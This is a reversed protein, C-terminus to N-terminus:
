LSSMEEVQFGDPGPLSLIQTLEFSVKRGERRKRRGEGQRKLVGRVLRLQLGVKGKASDSAKGESRRGVVLVARNRDERSIAEGSFGDLHFGESKSHRRRREVGGQSESGPLVDREKEIWSRNVEDPYVAGGDDAFSRGADIKWARFPGVEGEEDKSSTERTPAPFYSGGDSANSIVNLNV